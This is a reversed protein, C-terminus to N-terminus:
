VGLERMVHNRIVDAHKLMNEDRCFKRKSHEYSTAFGLCFERASGIMERPLVPQYNFAEYIRIRERFKRRAKLIQWMRDGVLQRLASFHVMCVGIPPFDEALLNNEMMGVLVGAHYAQTLTEPRKFELM